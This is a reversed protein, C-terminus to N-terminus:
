RSRRVTVTFSTKNTNGSTDAVSCSVRTRGLHFLAGSRPMCTVPVADDVDDQATVTYTVPAYRARRAVRVREDKAGNITPATVDFEYGPVNLTGTWTDHGTFGRSPGYSTTKVTGNGSTGVYADSGATITFQETPTFPRNFRALCGTGSTSLDIEGKGAVLLRVTTPILRVPDAGSPVVCGAPANELVYKYSEKVRGLGPVLATGTRDFCQYSTPTGSPCFREPYAIQIDTQLALTGVAVGRGYVDSAVSGGVLTAIILMGVLTRRRQNGGAM